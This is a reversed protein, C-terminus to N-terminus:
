GSPSRRRGPASWSWAGDPTSIGFAKVPVNRLELAAHRKRVLSVTRAYGHSTGTMTELSAPNM